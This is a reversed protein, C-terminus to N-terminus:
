LPLDLAWFGAGLFLLSILVALLLVYFEVSNDLLKPKWLKVALAGLTIVALALAAFQTYLGAVLLAGGILEALSIIWFMAAGGGGGFVIKQLFAIRRARERFIKTYGFYVFIAGSAVRLLFPALLYFTLLEPFINLTNM